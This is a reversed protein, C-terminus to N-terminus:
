ETGNRLKDLREQLYETRANKIKESLSDMEGQLGETRETLERLHDKVAKFERDKGYRRRLGEGLVDSFNEMPEQELGRRFEYGTKELDDKLVNFEEQKQDFEERMMQVEPPDDAEWNMSSGMGDPVGKEKARQYEEDEMRMRQQEEEEWKEFEEPTDPLESEIM